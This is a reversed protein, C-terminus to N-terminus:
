FTSRSTKGEGPSVLFTVHHSTLYILPHELIEWDYEKTLLKVVDRKTHPSANDHLINAGDRLPHQGKGDFPQM